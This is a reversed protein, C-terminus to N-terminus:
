PLWQCYTWPWEHWQSVLSAKVPNNIVYLRVRQLEAENRIVHDYFEQQWFTGTRRLLQNAQRATHRKLSHMIAPLAYYGGDGKERPTFVVHVHNSTVCFTDLDYVDQDRFRLSETVVAAVNPQGLWHPGLRNQDLAADWQGFLRKQEQSARRTKEDKDEIAAIQKEVLKAEALLRRQVALPLSGALRFTVFLTAGPPQIHPLHRNYSFRYLSWDMQSGTPRTPLGGM